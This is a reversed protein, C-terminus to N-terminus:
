WEIEGDETVITGPHTCVHGPFLDNDNANYHSLLSTHFSLFVNPSNPLDLTYVSRNPFTNMITYPGDYRPMFKAIHKDDKQLYDRRQHFTSLMVRDVTAFVVEDRWHRNVFEAQSVKAKLLNDKAEQIDDHLRQLVDLARAVDDVEDLPILPPIIRPSHGTKLQFGSYGTSTNITNLIDFWVRPLAHFWCGRQNCEIHYHLAVTPIQHHTSCRWPLPLNCYQILAPAHWTMCIHPIVQWEQRSTKTGGIMDFHRQAACVM